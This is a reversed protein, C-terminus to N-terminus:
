RVPVGPARRYALWDPGLWVFHYRAQRLRRRLRVFRDRDIHKGEFLLYRPAWSADLPIQEIIDADFGEADTLMVDLTDLEYRDVLDRLPIADVTVTEIRADLDPLAYAHKRVVERDMSTIQGVWPPDGPQPRVQYMTLTGVETGVALNAFRVTSIDAYNAVLRDFVHPLPEVLVGTWSRAHVTDYIPDNVVGDNAGIQLFQLPRRSRRGLERMVARGDSACLWCWVPWPLWQVVPTARALRPRVRYLWVMRARFVIRLLSRRRPRRGPLTGV